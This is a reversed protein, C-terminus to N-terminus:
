KDSRCARGFHQFPLSQLPFFLLPFAQQTISSKLAVEILNNLQQVRKIQRYVGRVGTLIGGFIKYREVSSVGVTRDPLEGRSPTTSNGIALPLKM